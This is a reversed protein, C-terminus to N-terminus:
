GGPAVPAPREPFPERWAPLELLRDHWREIQPFEAIPLHSQEAYPLTVAVAFDAITLADGLLYTRDKLHDDLVRASTRFGGLAAEIAALDPPGLHFRSKIVYEFYLVGAHRTFHEADWSLWRLVDIQREDRPWLESGAKWALACMIANSEWLVRDGDVLTPARANPNLARYAPTVQDGRAFDLYVYEVPSGLHRAVACAKRPLLTDSYYLKM